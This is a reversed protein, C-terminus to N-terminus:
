FKGSEDKQFLIKLDNRGMWTGKESVEALGEKGWLEERPMKLM